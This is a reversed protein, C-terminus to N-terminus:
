TNEDGVVQNGLSDGRSSSERYPNYVELTHRDVTVTRQRQSTSKEAEEKVREKYSEM